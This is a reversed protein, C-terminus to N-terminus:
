GDGLYPKKSLSLSFFVIFLDVPFAVTLSRLAMGGGRVGLPLSGCFTSLSLRTM